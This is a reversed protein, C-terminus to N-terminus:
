GVARVAAFIPWGLLYDLAVLQHLMVIAWFWVQYGAKANKHRVTQQAILAGPWGGLLELAHLVIEPVRAGGAKARGKDAAYLAFTALSLAGAASFLWARDFSLGLRGLALAPLLLLALLALLWNWSPRAPNM